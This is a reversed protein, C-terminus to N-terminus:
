GDDLAADEQMLVTDAGAPMAGGTLVRLATGGPLRGQFPHGAAARSDLLRLRTPRDAALDGHAFAFGDVAVNDFGPVDRPSVVQEALIRGHAEALAVTEREVVPGIRAQLLALAEAARLRKPHHAFCDDVLARAM